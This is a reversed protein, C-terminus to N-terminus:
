KLDERLFKLASRLGDLHTGAEWMGQSREKIKSECIRVSEAKCAEYGADFLTREYDGPRFNPYKNFWWKEFAEDKTM